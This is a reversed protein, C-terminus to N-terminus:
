SHELALGYKTAEYKVYRKCDSWTRESLNPFNESIVLHFHGLEVSHATM